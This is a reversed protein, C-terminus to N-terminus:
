FTSHLLVDFDSSFNVKSIGLKVDCYKKKKENNKIIIEDIDIVLLKNKDGVSFTTIYHPNNPANGLPIKEIPYDKFIRAFVRFPILVVPSNDDLLKNGSDLFGRLYYTKQGQKLEVDYYYNIVKNKNRLYKVLQVLFYFYMSAFVVFMSMPIEYGNILIENGSTNIGLLQSVAFCIGGMLFTVTYVVICTIFIERFNAYKKLILVMVFGIFIKVLFLYITKISFLPLIVACVVGWVVALVINLRKFKVGILM